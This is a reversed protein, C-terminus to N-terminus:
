KVSNIYEDIHRIVVSQPTAAADLLAKNFEIASFKAGLETEAKVRLKEVFEHGYSYPGYYVPCLRLLDYIQQTVETSLSFGIDNLFKRTREVDWGYYNIGLDTISYALYSVRSDYTAAKAEADSLGKLYELAHYQSYVAYGEIMFDVELTKLYDSDINEILYAFQYMHGPFGEHTVTMYTDISSIEENDPNVRMQQLRSGDLAPVIFYVAISKESLKEQPDAKQIRYELDKIEPHDALMKQKVSDLIQTYDSYGTDFSGSYYREVAAQDRRYLEQYAAVISDFSEAMEDFFDDVSKQYTGAKYNLLIAYYEDGYPLMAFGGTNNWGGKMASFESRLKEISPFYSAAFAEKLSAKYEERKTDSLGEVEDVQSVICYVSYSDMGNALIDSCSEIVQDFDTMLLQKEQQKRAYAISTEVYEPITGILTIMDKIDQENRIDWSTLIAEINAELSNPPTFLQSYYDYKEDSMLLVTSIEWELSDYEDQQLPTLKSRDFARFEEMLGRYYTRDKEMSEDDPAKGFSVEINDPDLGSAAPDTYYIHAITYNKEISYKYQKFVFAAFREQEEANPDPEPPATNNTNGSPAANNTNGSPVANNTNGSPAANNTNNRGPTCSAAAFLMVLALLLALLKKTM